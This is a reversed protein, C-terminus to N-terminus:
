QFYSQHDHASVLCHVPHVHQESLKLAAIVFAEGPDSVDADADPLLQSLRAALAQWVALKFAAAAHSASAAKSGSQDGSSEAEERFSTLTECISSWFASLQM